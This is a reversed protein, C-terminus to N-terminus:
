KQKEFFEQIKEVVFKQMKKTIEPYLPLSLIEAAAKEAIPLDGKKYGLFGYAKQLHLPVPYHMLAQINNEHLFRLLKNRNKTRIQYIHYVSEKLGLNEPTKIQPVRKKLLKTYYDAKERRKNNWLDLYRLKVNLIAAQITDMRSNIGLTKHIYKKTQGYERLLLCRKAIKSDNTVIAGGDGYAGLNKGPYFSFASFTGFNGVKKKKYVAGHAQCADEVLVIKKGKSSIIKKIEDIKDPCGFLHVIIVAKTKSNVKKELDVLNIGFDNNDVDVFVVKLGNLTAALATSIYTNSPIIVEDNPNLGVARLGLILADTGSNVGICYKAGLYKAFSKEFNLVEEGQIFMASNITKAIALDVEKKIKSYQAKLDVFPIQM